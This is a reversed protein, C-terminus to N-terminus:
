DVFVSGVDTLFGIQPEPMTYMSNETAIRIPAKYTLCVGGGICIGDWIAIQRTKQQFKQSAIKYYLTYSRKFFDKLISKDVNQNMKARYLSMIDAGACFAKDGSGTFILARPRESLNRDWSELKKLMSNCM